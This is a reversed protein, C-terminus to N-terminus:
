IRIPAILSQVNLLKEHLANAFGGHHAMANYAAVRWTPMIWCPVAEYCNQMALRANQRHLVARQGTGAGLRRIINAFGQLASKASGKM